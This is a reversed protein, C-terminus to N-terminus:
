LKAKEINKKVFVEQNKCWKEGKKGGEGVKGGGRARRGRGGGAKM